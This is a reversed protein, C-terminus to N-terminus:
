CNVEKLRRTKNFLFTIKNTMGDFEPDWASITFNQEVNNYSTWELNDMTPALNPWKGLAIEPTKSKDSSKGVWINM